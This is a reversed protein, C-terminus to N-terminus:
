PTVGTPQTTHHTHSFLLPLICVLLGVDRWLATWLGTFAKTEPDGPGYCGCDVDLGLAIAYGLVAMFLLTLGFLVPAALRHRALLGVAAVVELLPLAVAVPAVLPAPLIGYAAILHAFAAPDALKTVGAYLFVGAVLLRLPWLLAPHTLWNAVRRAVFPGSTHTRTTSACAM